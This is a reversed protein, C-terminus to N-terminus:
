DVYCFYLFLFLFLGMEVKQVERSRQKCQPFFAAMWWWFFFIEKSRNKGQLSLSLKSSSFLFTFRALM